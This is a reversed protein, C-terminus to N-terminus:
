SYNREGSQQAFWKAKSRRILGKFPRHRYAVVKWTAKLWGVQNLRGHSVALPRARAFTGLLEERERERFDVNIYNIVDEASNGEVISFIVILTSCQTQRM